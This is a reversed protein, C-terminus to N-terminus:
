SISVPRRARRPRSQPRSSRARRSGRDRSSRAAPRWAEVRGPAAAATCRVHHWFVTARCRRLAPRERFPARPTLPPRRRRQWARAAVTTPTTALTGHATVAINARASNATQHAGHRLATTVVGNCKVTDIGPPTTSAPLMSFRLRAMERSPWLTTYQARSAPTTRRYILRSSRRSVRASGPVSPACFGNKEGSPRQTPKKLAPFSRFTATSPPEGVTRASAGSSRAPTQSSSSLTTNAGLKTPGRICTAAAPPTGRATVVISVARLSRVCRHGAASGPPSQTSNVMPITLRGFTYSSPSIPRTEIVLPSRRVNNVPALLARKM